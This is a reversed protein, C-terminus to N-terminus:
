WLEHTKDKRTGVTLLSLGLHEWFHRQLALLKNKVWLVRYGGRMYHCCIYDYVSMCVTCKVMNVCFNMGENRAGSGSTHVTAHCPTSKMETANQKQKRRHHVHSCREETDIQVWSSPRKRNPSKSKQKAKRKPAPAPQPTKLPPSKIKWNQQPQKKKTTRRMMRRGDELCPYLREERKKGWRTGCSSKTTPFNLTRRRM